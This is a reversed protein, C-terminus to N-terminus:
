LNLIMFCVVVLVLEKALELNKFFSGIPIFGTKEYFPGIPTSLLFKDM